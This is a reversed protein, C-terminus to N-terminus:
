HGFYAERVHPNNMLEEASGRLRIEGTELVHVDRALRTAFNVNQETILVTIGLEENM